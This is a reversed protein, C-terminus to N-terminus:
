ASYYTFFPYTIVEKVQVPVKKFVGDENEQILYGGIIQIGEPTIREKIAMRLQLENDYTKTTMIKQGGEYTYYYEYYNLLLAGDILVEVKQFLAENEGELIPPFFDSTQLAEQGLLLKSSLLFLFFVKKM